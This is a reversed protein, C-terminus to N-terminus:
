VWRHASNHRREYEMNQSEVHALFESLTKSSLVWEGNCFRWVRGQADAKHKVTLIEKEM